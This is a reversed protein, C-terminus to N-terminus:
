QKKWKLEFDKTREFMDPHKQILYEEFQKWLLKAFKDSSIEDM